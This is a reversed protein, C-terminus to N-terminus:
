WWRQWSALRWHSVTAVGPSQRQSRRWRQGAPTVFPLMGCVRCTQQPQAEFIPETRWTDSDQRQREEWSPVRMTKEDEFVVDQWQADLQLQAGCEKCYKERGTLETGCNWCRVERMREM